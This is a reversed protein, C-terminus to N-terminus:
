VSEYGHRQEHYGTWGSYALHRNSHLDLNTFHEGTLADAHRLDTLADPEDGEHAVIQPVEVLRTPDPM